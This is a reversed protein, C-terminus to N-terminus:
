LDGGERGLLWHTDVRPQLKSQTEMLGRYETRFGFSDLLTKNEASIHIKMPEGLQTLRSAVELANGFMRYRPMSDGVKQIGGVASGSHIGIRLNLHKTPKHPVIFKSAGNMIDLAMMAIELAHADGLEKGVALPVGSVVMYSDNENQLKFVEYKDIRADIM